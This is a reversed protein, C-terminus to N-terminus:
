APAANSRAATPPCVSRSCTDAPTAPPRPLRSTTRARTSSAGSPSAPRAFGTPDAWVEHPIVYLDDVATNSSDFITPTLPLPDGGFALAYGYIYTEEELTLSFYDTDGPSSIRGTEPIRLSMPRATASTSGPETATRVFLTYPGTDDDLYGRVKIYYTRAELRRRLMFGRENDPFESDDNQVLVSDNDADILQGFTDVRGVAM